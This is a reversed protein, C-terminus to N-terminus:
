NMTYLKKFINKYNRVFLYLYRLIRKHTVICVVNGNVPDIIPLRHVRNKTLVQIADFLTDEPRLYVFPRRYEKLVERWLDGVKSVKEGKGENPALWHPRLVLDILGETRQDNTQFKLPCEEAQQKQEPGNCAWVNDAQFQNLITESASKRRRWFKSLM